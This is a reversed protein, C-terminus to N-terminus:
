LKFNIKMGTMKQLSWYFSYITVKKTKLSFHNLKVRLYLFQEMNNIKFKSKVAFSLM